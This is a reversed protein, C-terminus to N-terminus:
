GQATSGFHAPDQSAVLNSSIWRIGQGVDAFQCSVLHPWSRTTPRTVLALQAGSPSSGSVWTISGRVTQEDHSVPTAPGKSVHGGRKGTLTCCLSLPFSPCQPRRFPKAWHWLLSTSGQHLKGLWSELGKSKRGIYWLSSCLSVALWLFLVKGALNM